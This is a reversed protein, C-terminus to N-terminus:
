VDRRNLYSIVIDQAKKTWPCEYAEPIVGVRQFGLRKIFRLALKNEAPTVGALTWIDRQSLAWRTFHKGHEVTRGTGIIAPDVVGFHVRVSKGEYGNLWAIAEINGQYILAFFRNYDALAFNKFRAMGDISGDYFITRVSDQEVLKAWIYELDEEGPSMRIGYGQELWPAQVDNM